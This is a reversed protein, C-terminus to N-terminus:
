AWLWTWTSPSPSRGWSFDRKVAGERSIGFFAVSRDLRRRRPVTAGRWRRSVPPGPVVKALFLNGEGGFHMHFCCLFPGMSTVVNPTCSSAVFKDANEFSNIQFFNPRM